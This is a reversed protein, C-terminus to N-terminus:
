NESNGLLGGRRRLLRGQGILPQPPTFEGVIIKDGESLGSTIETYQADRLGTTVETRVVQGTSLDGGQIVNVYFKGTQREAIVARNPVLLVNKREATTLDANASMGVRIPLDTNGLSIHVNYTAPGNESAAASKPEITTVTGTIVEDPFPELTIAATQDPTITALDVEGVNLVVELSSTDILSLARGAATEGVHVYIATVIGDFPATLTAKTLDNQARQLSIRAQEVQAQAIAVQEASVGNLVGDLAAQAQALQTQAAAVEAATAGRELLALNAQVADRNAMAVGVSAQAAGVENPDAGSQLEALKQQAAELSKHAAELAFRVQEETAGLCCDLVVEYARQLGNVAANAASVQAQAQLVEAEGPGTRALDLRESAAQVNANAARLGAQASALQQPNPGALLADLRLQASTVAAQAASVQEPSAGGVLEDLRAQQIILTQEASAIAREFDASDLTVLKDGAKVATGVEVAISKVQGSTALALDANRQTAVQGSATASSALDGVIVSVVDATRIAEQTLRRLRVRRLAVLVFFVLVISLIVWPWRSRKKKPQSTQSTTM